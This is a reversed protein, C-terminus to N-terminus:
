YLRSKQSRSLNRQKLKIEPFYEHKVFHFDDKIQSFTFEVVVPKVKFYGLLLIFYIQSHRDNLSYFVNLEVENLTFYIRRHEPPLTPPNYLDSIESDLLISRHKNNHSM